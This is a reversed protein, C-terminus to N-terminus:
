RLLDTVPAGRVQLRRVDRVLEDTSRVRLCHWKMGAAKKLADADLRRVDRQVLSALVRTKVLSLSFGALPLARDWPPPGEHDFAVWDVPFRFFHNILHPLEKIESGDQSGAILALEQGHAQLREVLQGLGSAGLRENAAVFGPYSSLSEVLRQGFHATDDGVVGVLIPIRGTTCFSLHSLFPGAPFWDSLQARITRELRGVIHQTVDRPSRNDTFLPEELTAKLRQSRFGSCSATMIAAGTRAAVEAFFSPFSVYRDFFRCVVGPGGIDGGYLLVSGERLSLFSRVAEDPDIADVGPISKFLNPAVTNLTVPIGRSALAYAIVTHTYGVHPLAIMVPTGTERLEILRDLGSVSASGLPSERMADAEQFLLPLLSRGYRYLPLFSRRKAHWSTDGIVTRSHSSAYELAACTLYLAVLQRFVPHALFKGRTRVFHLQRAAPM